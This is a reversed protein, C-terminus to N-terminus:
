AAGPPPTADPTCSTFVRKRRSCKLDDEKQVTQLFSYQLRDGVEESMWTEPKPFLVMKQITKHVTIKDIGVTIKILLKQSLATQRDDPSNERLTANSEKKPLNDLNKNEKSISFSSIGLCAEEM